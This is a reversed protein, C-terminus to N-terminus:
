PDPPHTVLVTKRDPSTWTVAATDPDLDAHWGGVDALQHHRRCGPATTDLETTGGSAWGENLHMADTWAIPRDCGPGVCSGHIMALLPRLRDPITRRTRGFAVPRYPGMGLIMTANANDLLGPLRHLDIPQGSGLRTTPRSALESRGLLTFLDAYIFLHPKAGQVQSADPHEEAAQLIRDFADHRIQAPTRRQDDATDPPDPQSYAHLLNDFREATVPDLLARLDGLGHITRAHYLERDESPGRDPEPDRHDTADAIAQLAIQLDRPTAAEALAVLAPEHDGLAAHRRGTAYRVFMKVHETTTRGAQWSARLLAFDALRRAWRQTRSGDRGDRRTRMKFWSGATVCADETFAARRDVRAVHRIRQAELRTIQRDVEVTHELLARDSLRDLDARAVLDVAETLAALAM